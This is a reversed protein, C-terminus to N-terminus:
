MRDGDAISFHDTDAPNFLGGWKHELGPVSLSEWFTGCERLDEVTTLWVGRRFINLDIAMRDCHRSREIGEREFAYFRALEPPRYAEGLSCQYGNLDLWTLFRVLSRIFENQKEVESM